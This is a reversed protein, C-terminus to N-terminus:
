LNIPTPSQATHGHAEAPFIRLKKIMDARLKNRPMMGWVADYLIKDPKTEMLQRATRTKFGGGYRTHWHYTKEDMKKGELKIQAANIVVVYDGCDSKPDFWVKDKGRLINTIKTATRGLNKGKVDILYWKKNHDKETPVYSKQSAKLQM